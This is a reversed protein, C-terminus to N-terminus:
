AHTSSCHCQLWPRSFLMVRALLCRAVSCFCAFLLLCFLLLRLLLLTWLLTWPSCSVLVLLVPPFVLPSLLLRVCCRASSGFPVFRRWSVGWAWFWELVWALGSALALLGLLLWGLGPLAWRGRDRGPGWFPCGLFFCWGLRGRVPRGALCAGSLPAALAWEVGGASGAPGVLSVAAAGLGSGGPSLVPARAPRVGFGLGSGRALCAGLRLVALAAGGGASPADCGPGCGWPPACAWVGACPAVCGALCAEALPRLGSGFRVARPGPWARRLRAWVGAM